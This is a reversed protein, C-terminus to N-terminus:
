AHSRILLFRSGSPLCNKCVVRQDSFEDTWAGQVVVDTPPNECATTVPNVVPGGAISGQMDCEIPTQLQVTFAFSSSFIMAIAFVYRWMWRANM